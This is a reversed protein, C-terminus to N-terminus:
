EQARLEPDAEAKGGPVLYRDVCLACHQGFVYSSLFLQLGIILGWLFEAWQGGQKGFGAGDSGPTMGLRQTDIVLIAASGCQHKVAPLLADAHTLVASVLGGQKPARCCSAPRYIRQSPDIM